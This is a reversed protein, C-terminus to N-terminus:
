KKPKIATIKKDLIETLCNECLMEIYMDYEEITTPFCEKNTKGCKKCTALRKKNLDVLATLQIRTDIKNIKIEKELLKLKLEQIKIVRNLQKKHLMFEVESVFM